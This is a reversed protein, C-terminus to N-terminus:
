RTGGPETEQALCATRHARDEAAEHRLPDARPQSDEHLSPGRFALRSGRLLARLLGTRRREQQGAATFGPAASSEGLCWLAYLKRVRVQSPSIFHLMRNDQFKFLDYRANRHMENIDCTVCVPELRRPDDAIPDKVVYLHKQGPSRDRTALYFVLHSRTDWALIESVQTFLLERLVKNLRLLIPTFRLCVEYRGHSLVAIRQQTLTVHKIHTFHEQDGEQVASLLLFSDGDPTFVPHPQIDLWTGEPARESHTEECEWSPARCASVVSLNQSRTMWVVAVQASDDGIWGASILYYDRCIRVISNKFSQANHIDARKAAHPLLASTIRKRSVAVRTDSVSGVRM